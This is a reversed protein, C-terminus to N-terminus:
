CRKAVYIVPLNDEPESWAAWVCGDRAIALGGYEDGASDGRPRGTPVAALTATTVSGRRIRTLLARWAPGEGQETHLIWVTGKHAAVTSWDTAYGTDERPFRVMDWPGTGRNARLVTIDLDRVYAAVATSGDFAAPIGVLRGGMAEETLLSLPEFTKGADLSVTARTQQGNSFVFGQTVLLLLGDPGAAIRPWLQFGTQVLRTAGEANELHPFRVVSWSDGRDSSQWFGIFRHGISQAVAYLEGSDPAVALHMADWAHVQGTPDVPHFSWSGEDFRVLTLGGPFETVGMLVYMTGDPGIVATPDYGEQGTVIPITEPDRLVEVQWTRGGDETRATWIRSIDEQWALLVRGANNPDVALSVETDRGPGPDFRWRGPGRAWIDTSQRPFVDRGPVHHPALARAGLADDSLRGFLGTSISRSETQFSSVQSLTVPPLALGLVLVGVCIFAALIQTARGGRQDM